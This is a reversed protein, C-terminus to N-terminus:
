GWDTRGPGSRRAAFVPHRGKGLTRASTVRPAAFANSGVIAAAFITPNSTVGTVGYNTILM